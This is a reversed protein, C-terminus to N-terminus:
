QPLDDPISVELQTPAYDDITYLDGSVDNNERITFTRVSTAELDPIVKPVHDSVDSVFWTTVVKVRAESNIPDYDIFYSTNSATVGYGEKLSQLLEWNAPFVSGQHAVESIRSRLQADPIEKEFKKLRSLRTAEPTDARADLPVEIDGGKSSKIVTYNNRNLDPLFNESYNTESLPTPAARESPLVEFKEKPAEWGINLKRKVVGNEEYGRTSVAYPRTEDVKMFQDFRDARAVAQQDVDAFLDSFHPTLNESPTPSPSRQWPWRVGGNAANRVWNGDGASHVTLVIKGSRDIIQVYDNSPKFNSKIEYVGPVGTGDTYRIFWRDEDTATNKLQYIGKQNHTAKEILQEGDPIAYESIMGAHSPRLPNVQPTSHNAVPNTDSESLANPTRVLELDSTDQSFRWSYPKASPAGPTLVAEGLGAEVGIPAIEHALQLSSIVAAANGAVRDDATKGYLGDHVGFVINGVNGVIPLYGFTNGWFEKAAKWSQQSAGFVETQDTWRANKANIAQYHPAIGNKLDGFKLYYDSDRSQTYNFTERVPVAQDTFPGKRGPFTSRNDQILANLVYGAGVWHADHGGQRDRANFRSVLQAQNNKAWSAFDDDGHIERASGNKLDIMLGKNPRHDYDGHYNIYPIFAYGELPYGYINPIVANGDEELTRVIAARAAPTLHKNSSNDDHLSQLIGRLVYADAKGSRKALQGSADRMPAAIENEWHGQLQSGLSELEHLKNKDQPNIHMGQFNLPGGRSVKDHALAGAAIEWAFYTRVEKNTEEQPKGMGVYSHFTVSIKEHPDYGAALLGGSFYGAPELFLRTQQFKINREADSGNEIHQIHAVVRGAYANIRHMREQQTYGANPPIVNVSGYIISKSADLEHAPTPLPFPPQDLLKKPHKSSTEEAQQRTQTAPLDDLARRQRYHTPPFSPVVLTPALSPTINM